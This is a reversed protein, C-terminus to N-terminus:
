RTSPRLGSSLIAGYAMCDIQRAIRGWWSFTPNAYVGAEVCGLHMGEAPWNTMTRVNGYDVLAVSAKASPWRCQSLAVNVAAFFGVM